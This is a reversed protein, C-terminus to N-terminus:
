ARGGIAALWRLEPPLDTIFGARHLVYIDALFQDTELTEILEALTVPRELDTPDPYGMQLTRRAPLAEPPISPARRSIAPQRHYSNDAIRAIGGKV